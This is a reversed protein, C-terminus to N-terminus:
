AGWVLEHAIPFSRLFGPKVTKDVKVKEGGEGTGEGYGIAWRGYGIV